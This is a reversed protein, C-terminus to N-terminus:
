LYKQLLLLVCVCFLCLWLKLYLSSFSFANYFPWVTLSIDIVFALLAFDDWLLFMRLLCFCYRWISDSMCLCVLMWALVFVFLLFLIFAFVCVSFLFSISICNPCVLTYTLIILLLFFVCFKYVFSCILKSLITCSLWNILLLLCSSHASRPFFQYFRAFNELVSFLSYFPNLKTFFSNKYIFVLPFSIRLRPPFFILTFAM